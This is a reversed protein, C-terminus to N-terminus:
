DIRVDLHVNYMIPGLKTGTSSVSIYHGDLRKNHNAPWTLLFIMLCKRVEPSWKSNQNKKKKCRMLHRFKQCLKMKQPALDPGSEWAVATLHIIHIYKHSKQMSFDGFIMHCFHLFNLEKSWLIWMLVTCYLSHWLFFISHRVQFMFCLAAEHFLWCSFIVWCSFFLEVLFIYSLM